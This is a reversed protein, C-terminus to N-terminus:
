FAVFPGATAGAQRGEIATFVTRGFFFPMGLDFSNAFPLPPKVLTPNIALGPAVVSSGAINLPSYLSFADSFTAGDTGTLVLAITLPGSPCYFALYNANACPTLGTDIFFYDNSGSDIFSQTLPKGKYTATLVGAGLRSGSATVPLLTAANLMNNSQTGIGFTVTGSLAPVGQPPVAPLTLLTGNNDIPFAAVPNPLQEFPAAANAARAIIAGCGAAPCAYYIAGASGGAVTCRAGCDTPTTGIGIIGNAGFEQVTTVATGGGASCSAPVASFVGTDAIIQVPMAAVHEGAIAFDIKRVSGFAYSNVYQYCQGVPNGSPDTETPLAALMAADLVGQILRLGVSGTDLIIHDITQCNTTSGPACITITVYPENFATYGRSGSKLAAPGADLTVTAVNMAAAPVPAPPVVVAVPTPALSTSGGGGCSALALATILMLVARFASM